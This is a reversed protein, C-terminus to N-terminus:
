ESEPEDASEGGSKPVRALRITKKNNDRMSIDTDDFTLLQYTLALNEPSNGTLVGYNEVNFYYGTEGALVCSYDEYFAFRAGGPTQWEGLLKYIRRDRLKVADASDGANILYAYAELQKGEEVLREGLTLNAAYYIERMEKYSDPIDKMPLEKLLDIVEQLKGETNLGKALELRVKLWLDYCAASKEKSDSFGPISDFLEGARQYDMADMWKIAEDYVCQDHQERADAYAGAQSFLEAARPLDGTDRAIKAMDYTCGDAADKAKPLGAIASFADRAGELDGAERLDSAAEYACELAMAASNKYSGLAEFQKAALDYQESDFLSTAITFRISNAREKSDEYDGLAEFLDAAQALDGVFEAEDAINYRARLIKQESDQYSPVKEFLAIAEAWESKNYADTAPIYSCQLLLDDADKFGPIGQLLAAAREYQGSAIFAKAPEYSCISIQESADKYGEIQAFLSVASVYDGTDRKEVAALYTTERLQEAADRYEGAALFRERASAPDGKLKYSLGAQYLAELRQSAADQYDPIRGFLAAADDYRQDKMASVAPRYLCLRSLALADEYDGLKTFRAAAEEFSEANMLRTAIKYEAFRYLEPADEFAGLSFLIESAREYEGFDLLLQAQAYNAENHRSASDNYNGLKEFVALAQDVSEMDGKELLQEALAYDCALLKEPADRYDILEEFMDRATQPSGQALARSAKYYQWEPAGLVMVFYLAVIIASAIATGIWRHKHSVDRRKMAAQRLFEQRSAEERVMKAKQELERERVAIAEAVAEKSDNLFVYERSRGCRRCTNEEDSNVRGCVCLWIKGQNEPYGVADPGAVYRLNELARGSPLENPTYDVLQASPARRWVTGDDFWVKEFLISLSEMKDSDALAFRIEFSQKGAAAMAMPRETQSSIEGGQGDFVTVRIQLSSLTRNELNFLLLSCDGGSVTPLHYEWLELPCSLDAKMM